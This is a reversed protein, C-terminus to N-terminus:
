WKITSLDDTWLASPFRDLDSRLNGYLLSTIAVLEASHFGYGPIILEDCSQQIVAPDLLQLWRGEVDMTTKEFSGFWEWGGDGDPTERQSVRTICVTVRVNPKGLLRTPLRAVSVGSQKIGYIEV